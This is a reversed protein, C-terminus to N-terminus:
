SPSNWVRPLPEPEDNNFGPRSKKMSKEALFVAWEEDYSNLWSKRTAPPDVSSVKQHKFTKAPLSSTPRPGALQDKNAKMANIDPYCKDIEYVRRVLSSDM